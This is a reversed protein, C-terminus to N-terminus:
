LLAMFVSQARILVNRPPYYPRHELFASWATRPPTGSVSVRQPIFVIARTLSLFASEAQTLVNRPLYYPPTRPVSVVVIPAVHWFCQRAMKQKLATTRTHSLFGSEAWILLNFIPENLRYWPELHYLVIFRIHQTMTQSLPKPLWM